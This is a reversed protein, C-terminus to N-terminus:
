GLVLIGYPALTLETGSTKFKASSKGDVSLQGITKSAIGADLTVAQSESSFNISIYISSGNWTKKLVAVSDVPSELIEVTGRAIESIEARLRMAAKYYNLISNKDKEQEKVSPFSYKVTTTGPPPTTTEDETTWLMGIRKNPDNGTGKMGIEDGYYVFVSGPMMALLGAAFKIKTKDTGLFGASRSLDHNDLFPSIIVDGLTDQLTTLAGCYISAAKEPKSSNVAAALYGDLNATPFCFLSDVGSQYYTEITSLVSWVEGVVFSGSKLIEAENNLWSLFDVSKQQDDTYYSTCADLRFGDAGMDNLWFNMIKEIEARVENSDLNLDPMGSQFRGEYYLGDSLKHYGATSKDSWNYWDHYPSNVDAAATFWPNESSTHNVPLDIIVRIGLEHAKTMLSQFDENTGYQSDVTYYDAVDYKHYSPSQMIPMLWIGNFGMEAVYELKETVGNLDGIGDENTDYFSYVFIEYWNRYDDDLATPKATCGFVSPLILVFILLLSVIKKM